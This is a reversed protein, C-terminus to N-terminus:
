VKVAHVVHPAQVMQLVIARVDNSQLDGATGAARTGQQPARDVRVFGLSQRM